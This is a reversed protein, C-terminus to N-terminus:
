VHTGHNGDDDLQKLRSATAVRLLDMIDDENLEGDRPHSVLADRLPFSRDARHRGGRGRRSTSPVRQATPAEAVAEM